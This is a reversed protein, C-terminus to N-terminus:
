KAPPSRFVTREVEVDNAGVVAGEEEEEEEEAYHLGFLKRGVESIDREVDIGNAALARSLALARRRLRDPGMATRAPFAKLFQAMRSRNTGNNPSTGHVMTQHWILVSGARMPIRQALGLLHHDDPFHLWPLPQRTIGELAPDRSCWADVFRHFGPVLITGGDDEVNDEFNIVCQVHCGM